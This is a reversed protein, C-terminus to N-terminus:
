FQFYIFQEGNQGLVTILLIFIVAIVKPNKLKMNMPLGYSILLLTTALGCFILNIAGTVNISAGLSDLYEFGLIKEIALIAVDLSQSRFFIWAFDVLSFVILLSVIRFIISHGKDKLMPRIWIGIILYIGHLAGWILFTWNAGHWFGSVIFTLMLNYYWRWKVAKNGGLPIYVYDQFWSSLSIHWRKWFDKVTRSLYPRKFNEMLDYGLVRASGIAIDSYGSFDCYIQFAFFITALFISAGNANSINSIVPDSGYVADVYIGLRDAVVVKKFLGYLIKNVGWVANEYSFNRKIRFQPLLKSSREIPGAVLQPFFVVFLSFIGFHREVKTRNNYVDLSYSMTQFTYFSVGVPLIIGLSPILYDVDMWSLLNSAEGIFFNAYKFLGLIGLNSLLSLYLFRKRTKKVITNSMGISCWYDISTSVIIIIIYWANWSMYFFYSAALLLIWRYKQPLLFHGAVIGILFLIYELSNFFL